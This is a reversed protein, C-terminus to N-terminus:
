FQNMNADTKTFFVLYKYLSLKEIYITTIAIVHVAFLKFLIQRWLPIGM